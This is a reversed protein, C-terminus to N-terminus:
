VNDKPRTKSLIMILREEISKPLSNDIISISLTRTVDDVNVIYFDELEKSTFYSDFQIKLFHVEKDFDKRWRTLKIEDM